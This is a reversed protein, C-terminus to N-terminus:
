RLAKVLEPGVIHSTGREFLHRTQEREKKMEM